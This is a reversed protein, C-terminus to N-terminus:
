KRESPDGCFICHDHAMDEFRMYVCWHAPSNNECEWVYDIANDLWDYDPWMELVLKDRQRGIEDISENCEKISDQLDGALKSRFLAKENVTIVIPKTM